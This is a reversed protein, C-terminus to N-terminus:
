WCFGKKREIAVLQRGLVFLGFNKLKFLKLYRFSFFVGVTGYHVDCLPANTYIHSESEVMAM